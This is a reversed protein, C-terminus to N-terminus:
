NQIIMFGDKKLNETTIEEFGFKEYFKKLDNLNINFELPDAILLISNIDYIYSLNPFIEKLKIMLDNAIGQRRYEKNIHIKNLYFCKPNQKDFFLKYDTDLYFSFWKPDEKIELKIYGIIEDNFLCNININNKYNLM